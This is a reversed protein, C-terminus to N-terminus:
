GCIEEYYKIIAISLNMKGIKVNAKNQMVFIIQLLNEVSTSPRPSKNIKEDFTSCKKYNESSKQNNLQIYSM